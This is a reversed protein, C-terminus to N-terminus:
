GLMQIKYKKNGNRETIEIIKLMEFDVTKEYCPKKQCYVCRDQM